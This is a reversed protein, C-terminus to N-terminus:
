VPDNIRSALIDVAVSNKGGRPIILDAFRRSPEIFQLHMPKVYTEYHRMGQDLTRGREEVDRTVIRMLRDDADADVFIKIDLLDRLRPETLILIGEVLIVKAPTVSIRQSSRACTAYTYIPMEISRGEKLATLQAILLDWEIADPHDFNILRKEEPTKDGNDRYYADQPIVTVAEGPLRKILEQVVTSKGSGSGGSIGITLM